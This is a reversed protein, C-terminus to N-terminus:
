MYMCRPLQVDKPNSYFAKRNRASPIGYISHATEMLQEITPPAKAPTIICSSMMGTNWDDISRVSVGGGDNWHVSDKVKSHSAAMIDERRGTGSESESGESESASMILRFKNKETETESDESDTTIYKLQFQGGDEEDHGSVNLMSSSSSIDLQSYEVIDDESVCEEDMFTENVTTVPLLSSQVLADPSTDRPVLTDLSMDQPVLTDLSMDRPVLTDLSTDRPVLADLSTDRPISVMMEMESHPNNDPGDTTVTSTDLENTTSNDEEQQATATVTTELQYTKLSEYIAREMPEDVTAIPDAMTLRLSRRVTPPTSVPVFRKRKSGQPVPTSSSMMALKDDVDMAISSTSGISLVDEKSLLTPTATDIDNTVSQTPTAMDTVSQTPMTADTVLKHTYKETDEKSLKRVLPVFSGSLARKIQTPSTPLIHETISDTSTSRVRMCTPEATEMSTSSSSCEVEKMDCTSYQDSSISQKSKRRQRRAAATKSKLSLRQRSDTKKNPKDRTGDLQPIFDSFFLSFFSGHKFYYMIDNM